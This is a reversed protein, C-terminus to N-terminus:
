IREAAVGFEHLLREWAAVGKRLFSLVEGAENGAPDLVPVTIEVATANAVDIQVENQRFTLASVASQPITYRLRGMRLCRGSRSRDLGAHKVSNALDGCVLLNPEANIFHEVYSPGRGVLPALRKLYDKMSWVWVCLNAVDDELEHASKMGTIKYTQLGYGPVEAQWHTGQGVKMQTKVAIHRIRELLENVEEVTM